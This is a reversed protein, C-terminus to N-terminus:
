RQAAKEHFIQAMKKKEQERRYAIEDLETRRIVAAVWPDSVDCWTRLEEARRRIAASDFAESVNELRALRRVCTINWLAHPPVSAGQMTFAVSKAVETSQHAALRVLLGHTYALIQPTSYARQVLQRGARAIASAEHDNALAWRVIQDLRTCLAKRTTANQDDIRSDAEIHVYSVNPRLLRSLVGFATQEAPSGGRVSDGKGDTRGPSPSGADHVFVVLSECLLADHFHNLWNSTGHTLVIMRFGCFATKNILRLESKLGHAVAIHPSVADCRGHYLAHRLPMTRSPETHYWNKHLPYGFALIARPVKHEWPVRAAELNHALLEWGDNDPPVRWLTYDPFPVDLSHPSGVYSLALPPARSANASRAFMPMDRCGVPACVNFTPQYATMYERLWVLVADKRAGGMSCTGCGPLHWGKCRYQPTFFLQGGIICFWTRHWTPMGHYSRVIYSPTMGVSEFAAFSENLALEHEYLLPEQRMCAEATVAWARLRAARHAHHLEKTRCVSM